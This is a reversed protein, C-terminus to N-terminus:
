EEEKQQSEFIEKYLGSSKLLEDHSGVSEIKGDNMVVIRDSNMVSSIRQAIIIKTTQPIFKAFSNQIFSDTKTDVASTSDDLILIKPNKLLARAICLRQKQGPSYVIYTCCDFLRFLIV